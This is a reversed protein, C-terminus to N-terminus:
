IALRERQDVCSSSRQFWARFESERIMFSFLTMAVDETGSAPFGKKDQKILNLCCKSDGILQEKQEPTLLSPVWKSLLKGRSMNEHLNTVETIKLSDAIERLKM